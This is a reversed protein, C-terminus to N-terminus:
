EASEEANSIVDEASAEFAANDAEETCDANEALADPTEADLEADNKKKFFKEYIKYAAFAVAALILLTKLVSLWGCRKKVVFDTDNGVNSDELNLEYIQRM